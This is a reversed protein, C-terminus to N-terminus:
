ALTFCTFGRTPLSRRDSPADSRSHPSAASRGEVVALRAELVGLVLMVVIMQDALAATTDDLERVVVISRRCSCTACFSPDDDGPVLHLDYPM